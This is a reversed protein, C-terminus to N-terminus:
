QKLYTAEVNKLTKVDKFTLSPVNLFNSKEKISFEPNSNVKEKQDYCFTADYDMLHLLRCFFVM